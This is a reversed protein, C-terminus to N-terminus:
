DHSQQRATAYEVHLPIRATARRGVSRLYLVGEQQDLRLSYCQEDPYSMFPAKRIQPDASLFPYAVPKMSRSCWLARLVELLWQPLIRFSILKASADRDYTPCRAIGPTSLLDGIWRGDDHDSVRYVNRIRRVAGCGSVNMEVQHAAELRSHWCCCGICQDSNGIRARPEVVNSLYHKWCRPCSSRDTNSNWSVGSVYYTHDRKM